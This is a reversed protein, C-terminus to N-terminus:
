SLSGEFNDGFLQFGRKRRIQAIELRRLSLNVDDVRMGRFGGGARKQRIDQFAVRLSPEDNHTLLVVIGVAEREQPKAHLTKQGVDLGAILQDACEWQNSTASEPYRALKQGAENIGDERPLPASQLGIGDGIEAAPFLFNEIGQQFIMGVFLDGVLEVDRLARHLKM